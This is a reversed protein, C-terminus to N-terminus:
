IQIRKGQSIEALLTERLGKLYNDVDAEDALFPKPFYIKITRIPILEQKKEAEPKEPSPNAWADVQALLRPYDVDEFHRVMDRLVPILRQNELSAALAEFEGAIESRHGDTLRAYEALSSLREKLESLVKQATALEQALKAAVKEKLADVSVKLQQIRFEQLL